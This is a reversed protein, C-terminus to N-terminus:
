LTRESYDERCYRTTSTAELINRTYAVRDRERERRLKPGSVHRALRLMEVRDLQSQLLHVEDLPEYFLVGLMHLEGRRRPTLSTSSWKTIRSTPEGYQSRTSLALRAGRVRELQYNFSVLRAELGAEHRATTLNLRSLVRAPVIRRLRSSERPEIANRFKLSGPPGRCLCFLM